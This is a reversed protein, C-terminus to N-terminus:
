RQREAKRESADKVRDYSMRLLEIAGPIDEPTKIRYSVVAAFGGRHPEARGSAVIEDHIERPFQIDAVGDHHIHGIQREELRYGTVGVGGIGNEDRKKWAGPWGLVEQELTELLEENM